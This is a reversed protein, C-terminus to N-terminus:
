PKKWTRTKNHEEKERLAQELDIGLRNCVCALMWFVDAAEHRVKFDDSDAAKFGGGSQRLAKALEGIEEVLMGFEYELAQDAFGRYELVEQIYKQIDGVTPNNQLAPHEDM